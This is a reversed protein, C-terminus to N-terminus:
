LEDDNVEKLGSPTYRKVFDDCSETFAQLIIGNPKLIRQFHETLNEKLKKWSVGKELFSKIAETTPFGDMHCADVSGTPIFGLANLVTLDIQFSEFKEDTQKAFDIGIVNAGLELLLRPMWPDYAKHSNKEYNRSGCALDLITKGRLEDLNPYANKLTDLHRLIHSQCSKFNSDSIEPYYKEILNLVIRYESTSRLQVDVKPATPLAGTTSLDIKGSQAIPKM